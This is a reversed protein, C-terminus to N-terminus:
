LLLRENFDNQNPWFTKPKNNKICHIRYVNGDGKERIERSCKSKIHNTTEYGVAYLRCTNNQDTKNLKAIIYTFYLQRDYDLDALLSGEWYSSCQPTPSPALGKQHNSWKARSVYRINILTLCPSILYWKLTKPIVRGPISGRDGLGNAFM